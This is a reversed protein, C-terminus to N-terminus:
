HASPPTSRCLVLDAPPGLGHADDREATPRGLVRQGGDLAALQSACRNSKELKGTKEGCSMGSM